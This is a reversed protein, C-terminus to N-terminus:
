YQKEVTTRKLSREPKSKFLDAIDSLWEGAIRVSLDNGSLREM